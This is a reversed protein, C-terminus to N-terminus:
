IDVIAEIAFEMKNYNNDNYIRDIALTQKFAQESLSVTDTASCLETTVKIFQVLRNRCIKLTEDVAKQSIKAFRIGGRTNKRSTNLLNNALLKMMREVPARAIPLQDDKQIRKIRNIKDMIRKAGVLRPKTNHEERKILAQSKSEM